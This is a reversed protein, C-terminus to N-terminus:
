GQAPNDMLRDFVTRMQANTMTLAPVTGGTAANVAADFLAALANNRRQRAAGTNTQTTRLMERDLVRQAADRDQQTSAPNNLVAQAAAASTDLLYDVARRAPQNNPLIEDLVANRIQNPRLGTVDINFGVGMTILPHNPQGNNGNPNYDADFYPTASIGELQQILAYRLAVYEADTLTRETIAM